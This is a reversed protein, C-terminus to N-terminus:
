PNAHAFQEATDPLSDTRLKRVLEISLQWFTQVCLALLLGPFCFIMVLGSASRQIIMLPVLDALITLMRCAWAPRAFSRRHSSTSQFPM